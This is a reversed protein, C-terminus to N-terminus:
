SPGGFFSPKPVFLLVIFISGFLAWYGANLFIDHFAYSSAMLMEYQMLAAKAQDFSAQMSSQITDLFQAVYTPNQTAHMNELYEFRFFEMNNTAIATGFSGGVFRFYDMIVIALESKDEPASQLLLVTAPAFFMGMAVGLPVTILMAETFPTYYGLKPILWFASYAYVVGAIVLVYKPGYRDSMIGAVPSFIGVFIAFALVGLGADFTPMMKIHEYYVPLLYFFQYMSFGLIFFYILIGNTFSWSRFLTFDILRHRSHWESLIYFVFAILAGFLLLIIPRSNMWGLQQGKSLMILLLTTAVSLLIFSLLNFPLRVRRDRDPLFTFGAVLLLLGVPINIFFAMRWTFHETLYGGITPGLSPAFSVGLAFIGMAIGQKDPPFYSFIMVHSTVMILAEGIGQVVRAVIMVELSDSIGCVWSAVTFVAVGFLFIHKNGFRKILNEAFLLGVAAALMYSTIVWQVGYMDSSLPGTLKPVLVDVVTTDLIAMFAGTMVILTFIAREKATIRWAPAEAEATITGQGTM